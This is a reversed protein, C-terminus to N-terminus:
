LIPSARERRLPGCTRAASFRRKNPSVIFRSYYLLFGSLLFATPNRGGPLQRRMVRSNAFEGGFVTSRDPFLAPRGDLSILITEFLVSLPVLLFLSLPPSHLPSSHFCVAQSKFFQRSVIRFNTIVRYSPFPSANFLSACFLPSYRQVANM